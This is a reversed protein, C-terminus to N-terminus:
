GHGRIRAYYSKIWVLELTIISRSWFLEPILRYFTSFDVNARPAQTM